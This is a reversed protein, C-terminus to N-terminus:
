EQCPTLLKEGEMMPHSPCINLESTDKSERWRQEAEGHSVMLLLNTHAQSMVPIIRILASQRTLTAASVKALSKMHFHQRVYIPTSLFQPWMGMQSAACVGNMCPTEHFMVLMNSSMGLERGGGGGGGGGGYYIKGVGATYM